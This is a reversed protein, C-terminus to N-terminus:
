QEVNTHTDKKRRIILGIAKSIHLRVINSSQKSRDRIFTLVKYIYTNRFTTNYFNKYKETTKMQYSFALKIVDLYIKRKLFFTNRELFFLSKNIELNEINITVFKQQEYFRLVTTRLFSRGKLSSNEVFFFLLITIFNSM